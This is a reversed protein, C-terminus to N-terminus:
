SGDDEKGTSRAHECLGIIVLATGAGSAGYTLGGMIHLTFFDDIRPSLRANGARLSMKSSMSQPISRKPDRCSVFFHEARLRGRDNMHSLLSEKVEVRWVGRAVINSLPQRSM